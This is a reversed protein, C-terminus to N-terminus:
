LRLFSRLLAVVAWLQAAVKGNGEAQYKAAIVAVQEVPTPTPNVLYPMPDIGGGYGNNQEVNWWTSPSEGGKMPKLGYHLHDGSSFGTNDAYGVVEGKKVPMPAGSNARAYKWVPSAYKPEKHPDCLHWYISKFYVQQGEYDYKEISKIVVGDGESGDDDTYYALGDHSAYVAQGHGARLDIGNHGAINIGNKRYYEGNGGFKQTVFFPAVPYDLTLKAM